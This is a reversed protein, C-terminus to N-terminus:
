EAKCSTYRTDAANTKLRIAVRYFESSVIEQVIGKRVRSCVQRDNLGNQWVNWGGQPCFSGCGIAAEMM